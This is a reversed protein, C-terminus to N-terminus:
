WGVYVLIRVFIGNYISFYPCISIEQILSVALSLPMNKLIQGRKTKIRKKLFNMKLM